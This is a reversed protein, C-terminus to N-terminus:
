AASFTSSRVFRRVTSTEASRSSYRGAAFAVTASATFTYAKNQYRNAAATEVKAVPPRNVQVDLNLTRTAVGGKGDDATVKVVTPGSAPFSHMQAPGTVVPTGDGFDWSVTVLDGDGDTSSALFNIPVNAFPTSGAPDMAVSLSPATNALINLNLTITKVGGTRGDNATFVVPYVGPKDYVHTQALQAADQTAAADPRTWITRRPTTHDTWLIGDFYRLQESDHPDDFWGAREPRAPTAPRDDTM